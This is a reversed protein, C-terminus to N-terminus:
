GRRREGQDRAGDLLEATALSVGPRRENKLARPHGVERGPPNVLGGAVGSLGQREGPPQPRPAALGLGQAECTVDRRCAAALVSFAEVALRQREGVLEAHARDDGVAVEAEALEVPARALAFLCALLKRGRRA